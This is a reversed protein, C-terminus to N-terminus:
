QTQVWLERHTQPRRGRLRQVSDPSPLWDRRPLLAAATQSRRQNSSFKFRSCFSMNAFWVLPRNREHVSSCLGSFTKNKCRAPESKFAGSEVSLFPWKVECFTPTVGWDTTKNTNKHSRRLWHSELIFGLTVDHTVCCCLCFLQNLRWEWTRHPLILM